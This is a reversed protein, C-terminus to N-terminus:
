HMGRIWAKWSIKKRFREDERGRKEGVQRAQPNQSSLFIKIIRNELYQTVLKPRPRMEDYCAM